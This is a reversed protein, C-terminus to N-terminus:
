EGEIKKYWGMDCSLKRNRQDITTVEWGSQSAGVYKEVSVVKRKLYKDKPYFDTTVYDGVKLM